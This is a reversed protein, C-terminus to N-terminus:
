VPAADGTRRKAPRDKWCSLDIGLMEELADFEDLYRRSLETRLDADLRPVQTGSTMFRRVGLRGGLDVISELHRKRLRRGTRVAVNAIRPHKPMTSANVRETAAPFGGEPIGLFGALDGRVTEGGRVAEEFVVPLIQGRDFRDLYRRLHRSYYGM